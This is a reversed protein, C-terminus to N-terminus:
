WCRLDWLWEVHEGVMDITHERSSISEVPRFCAVEESGFRTGHVKPFDNLRM